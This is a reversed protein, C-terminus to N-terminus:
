KISKYKEREEKLYSLTEGSCGMQANPCYKSITLILTDATGKKRAYVNISITKGNRLELKVVHEAAIGNVRQVSEYIALVDNVDAIKTIDKKSAIARNSIRIFNDEYVSHQALDEALELINPNKRVFRSNVGKLNDIGVYMCYIGCVILLLSAIILPYVEGIVFVLTMLAGLLTIIIGLILCKVGRSKLKKLLETSKM